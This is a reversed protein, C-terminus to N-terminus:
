PRQADRHEVCCYRGNRGPLADSAPLFVGCHTCAVMQELRESGGKARRWGKRGAEDQRRADQARTQKRESVRVLSIALWILAIVVVWFLLKGM